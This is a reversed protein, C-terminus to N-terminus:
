GVGLKQRRWQDSRQRMNRLLADMKANEAAIREDLSAMWNDFAANELKSRKQSCVMLGFASVLVFSGLILGCIMANGNRLKRSM